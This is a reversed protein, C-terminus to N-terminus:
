YICNKGLFLVNQEVYAIPVYFKIIPVRAKPLALIEEFFQEDSSCVIENFVCFKFTCWFM